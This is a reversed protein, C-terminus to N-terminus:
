RKGRKSADIHARVAINVERNLSSLERKAIERLQRAVARPLRVTFSEFESASV